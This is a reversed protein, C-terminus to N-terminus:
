QIEPCEDLRPWVPEADTRTNSPSPCRDSGTVRAAQAVAALRAGLAHPAIPLGIVDAAGHAFALRRARPSDGRVLVVAPVAPGLRDLLTALALAGLVPTVVVLPGADRAGARRWAAVARPIEAAPLPIIQVAPLAARLYAGSPGDDGVLVLCDPPALLRM